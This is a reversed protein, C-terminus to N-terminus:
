ALRQIRPWAVGQLDVHAYCPKGTNPSCPIFDDIVIRPRGGRAVMSLAEFGRVADFCCRFM